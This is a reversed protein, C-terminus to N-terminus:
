REWGEAPLIMLYVAVLPLAEHRDAWEIHERFRIMKALKPVGYAGLIMPLPPKSGDPAEPLMEYLTMWETPAPFDGPLNNLYENLEENTMM